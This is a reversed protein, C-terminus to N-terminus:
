IKSFERIIRNGYDNYLKALYLIAFIKEEFNSLLAKNIIQCLIDEKFLGIDKQNKIEQISNFAKRETKITTKFTLGRISNGNM